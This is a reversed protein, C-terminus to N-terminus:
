RGILGALYEKIVKASEDLNYASPILLNPGSTFHHSRFDSPILTPNLGNRAALRGARNLHTASSLIGIKADKMEQQELFKAALEMEQSTNFGKMMAVADVPVKLARLLQAAEENPHLDNEDTRFTQQGTCVILGVKGDHFLRAATMVRDGKSNSQALGQLSTSTGGGLLFVVDMKELTSLDTELHPRELSLTLQNVFMPNGFLTLLSWSAIGMLAFWGHRFLLSFYILVTLLLWLMGVPTALETMTKEMTAQGGVLGSAAVLVAGVLALSALHIWMTSGKMRDRRDARAVYDEDYQDEWNKKKGFIM